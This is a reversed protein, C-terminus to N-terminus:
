TTKDKQKCNPQLAVGILLIVHCTPPNNKKIMHLVYMVSRFSHNITDIYSYYIFFTSSLFFSAASLPTTKGVAGIYGLDGTRGSANEALLKMISVLAVLLMPRINLQHSPNM